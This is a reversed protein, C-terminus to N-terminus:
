NWHDTKQKLQINAAKFVPNKGEKMQSTYDNLCKFAIGGLILITPVNTVVMLGQMMDAIDWVLGASAIAGIFVLVAAIIRMVILEGKSAERNIIFEYCGECYSYNGILTTFAFFAMAIVIFTPGFGGFVTALSDQVYGAANAGGDELVYSKANTGTSLCMFATATCILLTDIFVSLMQVLGQKAPHSVDARAAANPASGM